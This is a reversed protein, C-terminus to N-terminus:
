KEEIIPLTDREVTFHGRRSTSIDNKVELPDIIKRGKFNATSARTLRTSQEPLSKSIPSTLQKTYLKKPDTTKLKKNM